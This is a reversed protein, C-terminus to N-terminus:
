RKGDKLTKDIDLHQCLKKRIKSALSFRLVYHGDTHVFQRSSVNHYRRPKMKKLSLIGFNFIEIPKGAKLDVLMEEFLITIVSLVHYHHIVRRIKLNVYHWLVRKDISVKEISM